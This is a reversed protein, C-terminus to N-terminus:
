QPVCDHVATVRPGEDGLQTHLRVKKSLQVCPLGSPRPMAEMSGPIVGADLM